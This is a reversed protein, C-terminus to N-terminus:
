KEVERAPLPAPSALLLHRGNSSLDRMYTAGTEDVFTEDAGHWVILENGVLRDPTWEASLPKRRDEEEAAPTFQSQIM